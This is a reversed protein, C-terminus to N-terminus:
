SAARSIDLERPSPGDAKCTCLYDIWNSYM